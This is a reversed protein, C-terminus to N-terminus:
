NEMSVLKMIAYNAAYMKTNSALDYLTDDTVKIRDKLSKIKIM